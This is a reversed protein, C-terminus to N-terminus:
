LIFSDQHPPTKSFSTGTLVQTKLSGEHFHVWLMDGPAIGRSTRVLGGASNRVFTYGRALVAAPNVGALFRTYATIRMNTHERARAFVRTLHELLARVRQALGSFAHDFVLTSRDLRTHAAFINRTMQAYIRALMHDVDQLVDRRHLVVREAANSPTSARVDAIFDVLTEDREHGVGVVVPIPSSFVARAVREDNFAHLEEFSGGGRTLVLIDPRDSTPLASFATFAEVIEHVAYQGQVHVDAHTIRLGGMRDHLIRLFDGYAAAERSTILGIHEPFAPLARKRANDFLGEFELRTKLAFYAKQLAGEGVLEIQDVQLSFKGFRAFVSPFGAVRVRMGDALQPLAKFTTAFCPVRADVEEDKLLFTIWKGQAVKYEAIEGEVWFTGSQM